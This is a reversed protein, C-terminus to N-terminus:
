GSDHAFMGICEAIFVRTASRAKARYPHPLGLPQLPEGFTPSAGLDCRKLGKPRRSQTRCREKKGSGSSGFV